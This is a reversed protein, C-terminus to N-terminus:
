FVRVLFEDSFGANYVKFEVAWEDEVLEAIFSTFVNKFREFEINEKCVVLYERESRMIVEQVADSWHIKIKDPLFNFHQKDIFRGIQKLLEPDFLCPTIESWGSPSKSITAMLMGEDLVLWPEGHEFRVIQYAKVEGEKDFLFDLVVMTPSAVMNGNYEKSVPEM